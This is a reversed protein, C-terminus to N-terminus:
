TTAFWFICEVVAFYQLVESHPTCVWLTTTVRAYHVGVASTQCGRRYLFWVLVYIIVNSNYPVNPSVLASFSQQAAGRM